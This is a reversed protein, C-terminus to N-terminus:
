KAKVMQKTDKVEGDVVLAYSYIGNTLDDAFVNLQGNGRSELDVAQILKGQADYFLMQAKKASEPLFYTIATQEAFPNPVNQNLVVNTANNLTVNTENVDPNSMRANSSCCNAVQSELSDIQAQQEQMGAILIAIFANYDLGLYSTVPSIENGLTDYRAPRVITTVLEPLVTQVEQAIMGYQLTSRFNMGYSNTTDFYYTRPQIENLIELANNLSDINTKFMQDSPPINNNGSVNGNFMFDGEVWLAFGTGQQVQTYVGVNLIGSNATFYGSYNETANSALGNTFGEVGINRKGSGSARFSGATYGRDAGSSVIPAINSLTGYVVQTVSQDTNLVFLGITGSGAGSQQGVFLKSPVFNNCVSGITIKSNLQNGLFHLSNNNMDVATQQILISPAACSGGFASATAPVLIVDGVNNVSLCFGNPTTALSNSTLDRFRLGSAGPLGAPQADTGNLGADIELKNQPGGNPDNSLGIGVDVLNNGLIMTNSATALADYGFGNANNLNQYAIALPTGSNNGVFTCNSGGRNNQDCLFGIFVNDSGTNTALGSRKGYFCNRNGSNCSNASEYGYYCNDDGNANIPGCFTGVFTNDEGSGGGGPAQGAHSGVFVNNDGSIQRWGAHEGVFTNQNGSVLGLGADCGVFTNHRGAILTFGAAHGLFTNRDGGSSGSTVYSGGANFGVFTNQGLTAGAFNAAAGRGVFVNEFGPTMLVTFGNIRYGNQFGTTNVNINNLVDLQYLPNTFNNGIGIFGPFAYSPGGIFIRSIGGTGLLVNATQTSGFFNSNTLLGSAPPPGADTNGGLRWNQAYCSFSIFGLIIGFLIHSKKM